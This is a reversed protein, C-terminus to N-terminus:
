MWIRIGKKKLIVYLDKGYYGRDINNFPMSKIRRIYACSKNTFRINNNKFM